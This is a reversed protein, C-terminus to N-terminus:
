SMVLNAHKIYETHKTFNSMSPTHATSYFARVEQTTTYNSTSNVVTLNMELSSATDGDGDVVEEEKSATFKTESRDPEQERSVTAVIGSSPEEITENLADKVSFTSALSYM